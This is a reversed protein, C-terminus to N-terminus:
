GCSSEFRAKAATAARDFRQAHARDFPAFGREAAASAGLLILKVSSTQEAINAAMAEAIKKNANTAGEPPMSQQSACLGM